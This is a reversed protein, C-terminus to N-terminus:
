LNLVPLALLAETFDPASMFISSRYGFFYTSSLFM